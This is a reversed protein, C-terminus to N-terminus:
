EITPPLTLQTRLWAITEPNQKAWVERQERLHLLHDEVTDETLLFGTDQCRDEIGYVRDLIIRGYYPTFHSLEFFYAGSNEKSLAECNFPTYGSFDYIPYIASLQRKLNEFDKWRGCQYIAEWYKVNVPCFIVKLDINKEKCTQVIKRFMDVKEKDIVYEDLAMSKEGKLFDQPTEIMPLGLDVYDNDDVKVHMRDVVEILKPNLNHKYTSYSFNCTTKSFLLKFTDSFSLSSKRLREESFESIPSLNKSFAFFDLGLFVAKLDPQNILAHEFYGYVENFRAGSIVAKYAPYGVLQGFHSAPFGARVRSSGLMIAQPKKQIIKVAHYFREQTHGPLKKDNLGAVLPTQFYGYPDMFFNFAGISLVASFSLVVFVLLFSIEPNKKM